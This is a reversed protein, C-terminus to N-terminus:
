SRDSMINVRAISSLLVIFHLYSLPFCRPGAGPVFCKFPREGRRERRKEGREGLPRPRGINAQSLGLNHRRVTLQDSPCSSLSLRPRHLLYLPPSQLINIVFFEKCIRVTVSPVLPMSLRPEAKIRFANCVNLFLKGQNVNM